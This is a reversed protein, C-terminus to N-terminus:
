VTVCLIVENTKIFFYFFLIIIKIIEIVIKVAYGYLRM